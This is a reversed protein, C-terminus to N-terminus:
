SLCVLRVHKKEEESYRKWNTLEILDSVKTALFKSRDNDFINEVLDFATLFVSVARQKVVRTREDGMPVGIQISYTNGYLKNLLFLINAVYWISLM